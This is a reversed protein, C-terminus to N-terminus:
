ERGGRILKVTQSAGDGFGIIYAKYIECGVCRNDADKPIDSKGLAFCSHYDLCVDFEAKTRM